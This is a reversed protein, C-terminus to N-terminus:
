KQLKSQIKAFNQLKIIPPLPRIERKQNIKMLLHVMSQEYRQHRTSNRGFSFILLSVQLLLNQQYNWFTPVGGTMLPIWTKQYTIQHLFDITFNSFFLDNRLTERKHALPGPNLDRRRRLLIKTWFLINIFQNNKSKFHYNKNWILEKYAFDFDLGLISHKQKFIPSHGRVGRIWSM